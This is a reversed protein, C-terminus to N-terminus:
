KETVRMSIRRNKARGEETANDAVPHEEGYGKASMRGADTGLKVLEAMVGNARAESLKVNAAANGTNDTYGGLRIKVKPFAKLIAGVNNVQEQSAPQLTAKGTDFLLRDFDFWKDGAIASNPDNLYAILKSEVGNAPINLETGDPLKVRTMEGLAAWAPNAPPTADAAPAAPAPAAPAPATTDAAAAVPAPAAPTSPGSLSRFLLWALIVAGLIALPVLWRSGSAAASDVGSGVASAARGAGAGVTDAAGKLMGAGPISGMGPMEAKLMGGLSSANLSGASQMKAFYGLVLPAAMKLISGASGTSIGAQQAIQNTVQGQQSGFVMPLFKSVLDGTAGSPGGSAISSLSGLINQGGGGSVLGMIQGLFGSDGAKAALGGLTAATAAGLGGTVAQSSEGLRSAIAQKMDPTVMGLIADMMASAM